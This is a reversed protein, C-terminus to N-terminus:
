AMAKAPPCCAAFDAMCDSLLLPFVFVPNPTDKTAVSVYKLLFNYIIGDKCIVSFM